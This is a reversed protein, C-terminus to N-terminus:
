RSLAFCSHLSMCDPLSLSSGLALESIEVGMLDLECHIDNDVFIKGVLKVFEPKKPVADVNNLFALFEPCMVYDTAAASSAVVSVVNAAVM